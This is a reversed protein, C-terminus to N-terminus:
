TTTIMKAVARAIPFLLPLDRIISQFETFNMEKSLLGMIMIYFKRARPNLSKISKWRTIMHIYHCVDLRIFYSPLNQTEGILVLYCRSLYDKLSLCQAFVKVVAGLLAKDFDSVIERPRLFTQSHQFGIRLIEYLWYTIATTYQIGSLMQFEPIKSHPTTAVIQYLYIHPSREGNSKKLKKVLSGKADIYIQEPYKMYVAIQDPTWYHVFFPDLSISHISGRHIEDKM